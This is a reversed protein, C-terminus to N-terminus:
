KTGQDHLLICGLKVPARMSTCFRSPCNTRFKNRWYNIYAPLNAIMNVDGIVFNHDTLLHQLLAQTDEPQHFVEECLLCEM